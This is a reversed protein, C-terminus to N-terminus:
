YIETDDPLGLTRIVSQCSTYFGSFMFGEVKNPNDTSFSPYLQLTTETQVGPQGCPHPVLMTIDATINLILDGSDETVTEVEFSICEKWDGAVKDWAYEKPVYVSSSM